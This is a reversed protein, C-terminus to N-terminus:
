ETNKADIEQVDVRGIPEGVGVAGEGLELYAAANSLAQARNDASLTIDVKIRWRRDVPKAM